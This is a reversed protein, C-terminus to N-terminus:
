TSPYARRSSAVYKPTADLKVAWDRMAPTADVEGRAVAPWYSEMMEYTVRGWVMGASEELHGTFFAHTKADAIGEMHDICGDITVNTIFTMTGM